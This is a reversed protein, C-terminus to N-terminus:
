VCCTYGVTYHQISQQSHLQTTTTYRVKSSSSSSELASIDVGASAFYEKNQQIVHAEGVALRVALAGGSSGYTDLIDAQELGHSHITTM